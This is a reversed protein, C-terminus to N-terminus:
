RVVPFYELAYILCCSALLTLMAQLMSLRPLMAPPVIALAVAWAPHVKYLGLCAAALTVSFALPWGLQPVRALPFLLLAVVATYAFRLPLYFDGAITFAALIPYAYVPAPSSSEKPADKPVALSLAAGLILGFAFEMCKWGPFNAIPVLNFLSGAGFGIAGGLAGALALRNTIPSRLFVLLGIASLLLGAWIEERPQLFPHSFYLLKPQNILQWGLQCGVILMLAPTLARKPLLWALSIVAGGLMGWIAGKLSLGALGWLRTSPERLLGITQGYTEQGGLGIGLACLGAFLSAQSVSWRRNHAIAMAWLAGPIMAGLPGGGISGRLAWGISMMLAPLLM